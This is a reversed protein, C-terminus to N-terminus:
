RGPAHAALMFADHGQADPKARHRPMVVDQVIGSGFEFQRPEADPQGLGYERRLFGLLDENLGIDM